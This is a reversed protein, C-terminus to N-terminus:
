VAAPESLKLNIEAAGTKKSFKEAFKGYYDSCVHSSGCFHMSYNALVAIPRGDLSQIALLSLEKDAPGSPGIFDPNQYGPHMNARVTPEGYADLLIKDPRVIWRRCFTHEPAETATWGVQAPELKENALRITEIIKGRLLEIYTSDADAGLCAAVSPATHTHTASIMMKDPRIGTLESAKQKVEDLFDGPMFLNDVVAIAIKENGNDIIFCKAYLPNKVSDVIRPNFYGNVIVPFEVPSIDVQAAGAMIEGDSGVRSKHDPNCSFIIGTILILYIIIRNM